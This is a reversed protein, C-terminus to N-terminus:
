CRGAIFGHSRKRWIRVRIMEKKRVRGRDAPEVRFPGVNHFRVRMTIWFFASCSPRHFPEIESVDCVECVDCERRLFSGVCLENQWLSLRGAFQRRLRRFLIPAWSYVDALLRGLITNESDADPPWRFRSCLGHFSHVLLSSSLANTLVISQVACDYQNPIMEWRVLIM